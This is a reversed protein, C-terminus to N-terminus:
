SCHMLARAGCHPLTSPLAVHLLTSHHAAHRLTSHPAARVQEREAQMQELALKYEHPFVSIFQKVAAPWDALLEHAVSSGTLAAHREVLERVEAIDAEDKLPVLDGAVDANTLQAFTGDADLVFARGGSMGAGFNKGVPGLIVATGGTMYECGHDGVGEVVARAGSNRVCFREAARGNFFAEGGIAGYLVVNGVIVQERAEYPAEAPSRVAIVGACAAADSAAPAVCAIRCMGGRGLTCPERAAARRGASCQSVLPRGLTSSALLAGGSLGKGVYDNADGCLNIQVGHALWAGLSQGAHGTLNVTISGDPLGAEGFRKSIEYSLQTGTARHTNKVEADIVLPGDPMQAAGTAAAADLAPLAREMLLVDLATDLGHDQVTVCRQAAGPRLTAAPTLVASLDIDETKYHEKLVDEDVALLDARGACPRPQSCPSCHRSCPICRCHSCPTAGVLEDITRAGLSACIERMEEAVLFLYNIVHEPEGGFKARLVPDQTAIGVPCTNTHCKRMMICGMAILPATAFGIEEAGLLVAVMADRGTRM